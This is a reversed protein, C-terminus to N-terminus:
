PLVKKAKFIIECDYGSYKFKLSPEKVKRNGDMVTVLDDMQFYDIGLEGLSKILDPEIERQLYESPTPTLASM